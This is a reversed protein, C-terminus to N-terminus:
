SLNSTKEHKHKRTNQGILRQANLTERSHHSTVEVYSLFLWTIYKVLTFGIALDMTSDYNLFEKVSLGAIGVIEM